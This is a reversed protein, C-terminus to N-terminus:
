SLQHFLFLIIAILFGTIFSNYAFELIKFGLKLEEEFVYHTRVQNGIQLAQSNVLENFSEEYEEITLNTTLGVLFINKSREPYKSIVKKKFKRSFKTVPPKAALLASVLSVFSFVVIVIGIVKGGELESIHEFFVVIG